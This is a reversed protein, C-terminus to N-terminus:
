LFGENKLEELEKENFYAVVADMKTTDRKRIYVWGYLSGMFKRYHFWKGEPNLEENYRFAKWRDVFDVAKSIPKEWKRLDGFKKKWVRNLKKITGKKISEKKPLIYANFRTSYRQKNPNKDNALQTTFKELYVEPNKSKIKYTFGLSEIKKILEVNPKRKASVLFTGLSKNEYKFRHNANIQVNESLAKELLALWEMEKQKRISEM